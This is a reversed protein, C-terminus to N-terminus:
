AAGGGLRASALDRAALATGLLGADDGLEAHVLAPRRHFSLLADLRAGLPGFLAPGAQALGGGIVVAEPAVVAVLRAIAEALAEVADDWVRRALADGATAADLVERAGSVPTGTAASYRRAIAGASAITELCGIAGCPCREGLPDALSHGIEGAFGGGAYPHGDLVLASAIGTGIALVVVDGYGRAAGLRHEADGAARVDHGFAVPLDLAAEALSRIPADRWGLNSAFMGVGTLEDVLGPVSVGAAVPVIGPAAALHERALVALSAVITGAPDAPDLPTPTRRLGLVRGSADVLASKTDTGGVDFALVADGPGLRTADLSPRETM